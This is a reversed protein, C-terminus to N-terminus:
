WWSNNRHSLRNVVEDAVKANGRLLAHQINTLMERCFDKRLHPNLAKSWQRVCRFTEAHIEGYVDVVIPFFDISHLEALADYTRHKVIAAREM